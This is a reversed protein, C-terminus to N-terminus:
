LVSHFFFFIYIFLDGKDGGSKGNWADVIYLDENM